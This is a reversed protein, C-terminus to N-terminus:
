VIGLDYEDGGPSVVRPLSEFLAGVAHMPHRFPHVIGVKCRHQSVCVDCGPTNPLTQGGFMDPFLTGFVAVKGHRKRKAQAGPGVVPALVSSPAFPM